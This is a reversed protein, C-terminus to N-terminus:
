FETHRRRRMRSHLPRATGTFVAWPSASFRESLSSVRTATVPDAIRSYPLSPCLYKTMFGTLLEFIIFLLNNIIFPWKRGWKDAAIGFSISGVSRLMLVLTIGWTIDKKSVDFTEAMQSVTLSVTFFDFSDRFMEDILMVVGDDLLYDVLDMRLVCDLLVAMAEV